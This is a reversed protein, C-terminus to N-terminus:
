GEGCDHSSYSPRVYCGNRNLGDFVFRGKQAITLVPRHGEYASRWVVRGTRTIVSLHGASTVTLHSGRAHTKTHWVVTHNRMLVLDGSTSMTLRTTSGPHTRNVLTSGPMLHDGARLLVATTSSSWVVRGTSTRVVFRGGDTLQARGGKARGSTKSHWLTTGHKSLVLDGATSMCMRAGTTMKRPWYPTWTQYGEGGAGRYEIHNELTLQGDDSLFLQFRRSASWLQVMPENRSTVLCHGSPLFPTLEDANAPTSASAPTTAVSVLAAVAALVAVIRARTFM